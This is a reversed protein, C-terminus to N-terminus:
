DKTYRLLFMTREPTDLPFVTAVFQDFTMWEGDVMWNKQTHQALVSPKFIRNLETQSTLELSRAQLVTNEVKNQM